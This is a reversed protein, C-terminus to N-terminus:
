AKENPDGGDVNELVAVISVAWRDNYAVNLVECDIEDTERDFLEKTPPEGGPVTTPVILTAIDGEKGAKEPETDSEAVLPPHVAVLPAFLELKAILPVLSMVLPVM